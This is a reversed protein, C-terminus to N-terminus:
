RPQQCAAVPCTFFHWFGITTKGAGNPGLLAFVEGYGIELDIGDVATVDGYRKRLGSVRVATDNAM